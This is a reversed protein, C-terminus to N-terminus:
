TRLSLPILRISFLWCACPARTRSFASLEFWLLVCQESEYVPQVCEAPAACVVVGVTCCQVVGPIGRLARGGDRRARAGRVHRSRLRGAPLVEHQM